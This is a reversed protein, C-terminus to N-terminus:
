TVFYGSYHSIFIFFITVKQKRRVKRRRKKERKRAKLKPVSPKRSAPQTEAAEKAKM